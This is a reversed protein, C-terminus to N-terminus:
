VCRSTYLLCHILQQVQSRSLILPFWDDLRDLPPPNLLENGLEAQWETLFDM